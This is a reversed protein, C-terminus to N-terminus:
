EHGRVVAPWLREQIIAVTLPAGTTRAQRTPGGVATPSLAAGTEGWTAVRYLGGAARWALAAAQKMWDTGDIYTVQSPGLGLSKVQSGKAGELYLAAVRAAVADVMASRLTVAQGDAGDITTAADPLMALVDAEVAPIYSVLCLLADTIVAEDGVAFGLAVRVADYDEAKFFDPCAM